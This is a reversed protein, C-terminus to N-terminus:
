SAIDVDMDYIVSEHESEPAPSDKEFGGWSLVLPDDTVYWTAYQTAHAKLVELARLKTSVELHRLADDIVVPLPGMATHPARSLIDALVTIIQSPTLSVLSKEQTEAVKKEAVLEDRRILLELRRAGGVGQANIFDAYATYSAFGARELQKTLDKRAKDFKRWHKPTSSREARNTADLVTMQAKEIKMYTIKEDPVTLAEIEAEVQELTHGLSKSLVGQARLAAQELLTQTIMIHEPSRVSEFMELLNEALTRATGPENIITFHGDISRM